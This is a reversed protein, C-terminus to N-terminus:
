VCWLFLRGTLSFLLLVVLILAIRGGDDLRRLVCVFILGEVRLVRWARKQCACLRMTWALVSWWWLLLVGIVLLLLV